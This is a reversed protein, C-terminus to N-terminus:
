FSLCARCHDGDRARDTSEQRAASEARAPRNLTGRSAPKGLSVTDRPGERTNIGDVSSVEFVSSDGPTSEGDRRETFTAIVSGREDVVTYLLYTHENKPSVTSDGLGHGTHLRPGDQLARGVPRYPGVRLRTLCRRRNPPREAWRRRNSVSLPTSVREPTEGIRSYFANLGSGLRGVATHRGTPYGCSRRGM